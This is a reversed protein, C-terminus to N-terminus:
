VLSVRRKWSHLSWVVCAVATLLLAPLFGIPMVDAPGTSGASMEAFLDFTELTLRDGSFGVAVPVTAFSVFTIVQVVVYTAVWVLIPGGVGLRNLPAQSGVSAAFFYQTPWVLVLAAVTALAAPVGWGPALEALTSWGERLSALIPQEQGTGRMILAGAPLAIALAVVVGILSVLWAWLLKAWYITTGKQPLTQTLYGGRGFGSRWFQAALLVQALPVLLFTSMLAVSEGLVAIVPWRTAALLAGALTIVASIGVVIGLMARTQLFEHKLLTIM